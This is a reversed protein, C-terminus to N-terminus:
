RALDLHGRFDVRADGSQKIVEGLRVVTEGNAAFIESAADAANAALVAVMGIGCNFTRLMERESINGAAALWKFVPPVPVRNLDLAVSLGDPLVRPINDTFGGGTIHALAKVAKTKRMAALCSRVYLKTPTLLAEGLTRSPEFPAPADWALGCATVVRRLLSFGNSHVGSSALGIVIDGAAIDARPLLNAREV